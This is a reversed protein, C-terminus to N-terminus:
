SRRSSKPPSQKLVASYLTLRSTVRPKTTLMDLVESVLKDGVCMKKKDEERLYSVLADHDLDLLLEGYRKWVIRYLTGGTSTTREKM